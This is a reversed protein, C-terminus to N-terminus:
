LDIGSTFECDHILHDSNIGVHCDSILGRYYFKDDAKSFVSSRKALRDSIEDLRGQSTLSSRRESMSTVRAHITLRIKHTEPRQYQSWGGGGCKRHLRGQIAFRSRPM